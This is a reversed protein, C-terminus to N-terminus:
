ALSKTVVEYVDGSLGDKEAIREIAKKMMEQRKPTFRKWQTFIKAMRSAVQPNLGDLKIVTDALFNYGEEGATHFGYPNGSCFGGIVSYVKNPVTIDFAEHDMLKKVVDLADARSAGAQIGLWKLM